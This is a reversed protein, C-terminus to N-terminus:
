PNLLSERDRHCDDDGLYNTTGSTTNPSGPLHLAESHRRQIPTEAVSRKGGAWCVASIVSHVSQPFSPSSLSRSLPHPFVITISSIPQIRYRPTRRENCREATYRLVPAGGRGKYIKSDELFYPM